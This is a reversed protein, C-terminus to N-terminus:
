QSQGKAVTFGEANLAEYVAYAHSIDTNDYDNKGRSQALAKALAAIETPIM